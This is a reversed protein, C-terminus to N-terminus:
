TGLGQFPSKTHSVKRNTKSSNVSVLAGWAFIKVDGRRLTHPSVM